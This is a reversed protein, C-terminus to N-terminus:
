PDETVVRFDSAVRRWPGDDFRASQDLLCLVTSHGPVTLNAGDLLAVVRSNIDLADKWGVTRQTDEVYTHVTVLEDHGGKGFTRDPNEFSEGLLVYRPFNSGEPVGSTIRETGGGLLTVLTTDGSLVGYIAGLVNLSASDPM